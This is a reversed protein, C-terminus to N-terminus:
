DLLKGLFSKIKKSKKIEKKLRKIEDEGVILPARGFRKFDKGHYFCFRIAKLGKAQGKDFEMFQIMPEWYDCEVSVEETIEGEGFSLKFKRPLKRKM